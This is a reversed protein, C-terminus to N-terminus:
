QNSHELLARGLKSNKQRKMNESLWKEIIKQQDPSYAPSPNNSFLAIMVQGLEDKTAEIARAVTRSHVGLRRVIDMKSEYGKPAVLANGRKEDHQALWQRVLEQQEPWYASTISSGFRAKNVKGLRDGLDNLAKIITDWSVGFKKAMGSASLQDKSAKEVSKLFQGTDEDVNKVVDDGEPLEKLLSAIEEVFRKSYVVRRGVSPHQELLEHLKDKTLNALESTIILGELRTTDFIFTANDEEDCVFVARDLAPIDLMNYGQARIMNDGLVGSIIKFEGSDRLDIDFRNKLLFLITKTREISQKESFSGDGPTIEGVGRDGPPIIISNSHKTIENLLTDLERIDDAVATVHDLTDEIMDANLGYRAFAANEDARETAGFVIPQQRFARLIGDVVKVLDDLADDAYHDINEPTLRRSLIENIAPKFDNQQEIPSPSVELM